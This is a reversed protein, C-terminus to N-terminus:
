LKWVSKWESKWQIFSHPFFRVRGYGVTSEPNNGKGKERLGVQRPRRRGKEMEERRSGSGCVYVPVVVEKWSGVEVEGVRQRGRSENEEREERRKVHVM